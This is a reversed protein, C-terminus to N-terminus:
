QCAHVHLDVFGPLGFCGQGLEVLVGSERYARVLEDHRPDDSRVVRAIVGSADVEILADELYEFSGYEPTHFLSGLFAQRVDAAM